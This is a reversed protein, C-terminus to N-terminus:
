AGHAGRRRDNSAARHRPGNTARREGAGGERRLRTLDWATIGDAASDPPGFAATLRAEVRLAGASGRAIEGSDLGADAAKRGRRIGFCTQPSVRDEEAGLDRHVLVWDAPGQLLSEPANDVTNRLRLRHDHLLRDATVEVARRHTEQYIRLAANTGLAAGPSE